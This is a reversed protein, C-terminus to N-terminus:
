RAPWAFLSAPIPALRAQTVDSPEAAIAATADGNTFRIELGRGQGRQVPFAVDLRYLRKSRTPYSALLSVGVSQRSASVGYPVDGAWLTAADAFVALGVDAGYVARSSAGRMEIRTVNRRGGALTSGVFGRPGGIPDGLSLQTPLRAQGLASYNDQVDLLLRSMPAFYASVRANGVTSAWRGGTFDRRGEAEADGMAVWHTSAAGLYASHAVLLDRGNGSAMGPAVVVGLQWGVMVDQPAFLGDLGVRSAYRVRRVGLLGGFRASHFSEFRNVLASDNGALPGSDTVIIAGNSPSVRSGLAVPGWLAVTPGFVARVVGGISWRDSHIEVTEADGTQRLILPFDDGLRYSAFWAGHQANSLLQHSAVADIHSGLPDRAAQIQLAIPENLPAYDAFEFHAAARYAGGRQAGAVVRIGLGGVNQNGLTLASPSGHRLSGAVLVPIEDTTRIDLAVGGSGDDLTRAAADALFPLGRLVRESEAVLSDSCLNGVNLLSYARVVESRTTAHHLGVAHAVTRWKGGSGAFPPREPTVSISTIRRGDCSARVPEGQAPSRTPLITLAALLLGIDTSTAM